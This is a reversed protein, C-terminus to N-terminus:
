NLLRREPRGSFKHKTNAKQLHQAGGLKSTTWRPHTQQTRAGLGHIEQAQAAKKSPRYLIWTFSALRTIHYIGSRYKTRHMYCVISLTASFSQPPAWQAFLLSIVAQHIELTLMKARFLPCMIMPLCRHSKWYLGSPIWNLRFLRWVTQPRLVKGQYLRGVVSSKM